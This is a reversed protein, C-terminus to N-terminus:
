FNKHVATFIRDDNETFDNIWDCLKKIDENSFRSLIQNFIISGASLNAEVEIKYNQQGKYLPKGKLIM